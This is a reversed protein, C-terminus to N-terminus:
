RLTPFGGENEQWINVFDWTSYFASDSDYFYTIDTQDTGRAGLSTEPPTEIDGGVAYTSAGTWWSNNLSEVPLLEQGIVGGAFYSAASVSGVAFSNYLYSADQFGVIGGAM